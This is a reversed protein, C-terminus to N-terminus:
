ANTLPQNGGIAGRLEAVDIVWERAEVSKSFAQNPMKRIWAKNGSWVTRGSADKVQLDVVGNNNRRDEQWISNLVDNGVSTAQLSITVTASYNNSKARSVLGDAGSVKAWQDEDYEVEVFTGDVYGSIPNGGLTVVVDKPNYSAFAM